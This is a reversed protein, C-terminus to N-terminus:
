FQFFVFFILKRKIEKKRGVRAVRINGDRNKNNRLEMAHNIATSEKADGDVRINLLAAVVAEMNESGDSSVMVLRHLVNQEALTSM